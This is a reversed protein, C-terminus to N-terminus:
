VSKQLALKYANCFDTYFDASANEFNVQALNAATTANECDDGTGPICNGLADIGSQLAGDPDGCAGIQEQLATKYATCLETYNDETFNVFALAADVTNQLATECTVEEEIQFDGELPENECTGATFLMLCVLLGFFKKM